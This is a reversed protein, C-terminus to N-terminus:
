REPREDVVVEYKPYIWVPSEGRLKESTEAWYILRAAGNQVLWIAIVRERQPRDAPAFQGLLMFAGRPSKPPLSNLYAVGTMASTQARTSWGPDLLAPVADAKLVSGDPRPYPFVIRRAGRGRADAAVYYALSAFGDDTAGPEAKTEFTSVDPAGLPCGIVFISLRGADLPRPLMTTQAKPGVCTHQKAIAPPLESRRVYIAGSALAQAAILALCCAVAAIRRPM